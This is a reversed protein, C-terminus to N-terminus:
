NIDSDNNEAFIIELIRLTIYNNKKTSSCMLNYTIQYIMLHLVKKERKKEFEKGLKKRTSKRIKQKSINAYLNM